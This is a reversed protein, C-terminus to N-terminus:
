PDSRAPLGSGDADPSGATQEPRARRYRELVFEDITSVWDPHREIDIYPAAPRFQVGIREAYRRAEDLEHEYGNAM